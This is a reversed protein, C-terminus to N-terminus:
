RNAEAQHEQCLVATLYRRHLHCGCPLATGPLPEVPFPGDYWWEPGCDPTGTSKELTNCPVSSTGLRGGPLVNEVVVEGIPRIRTIRFLGPHGLVRVYDDRQLPQGNRDYYSM